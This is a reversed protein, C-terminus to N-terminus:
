PIQKRKAYSRVATETIGLARALQSYSAGRRLASALAHEYHVKTDQILKRYVVASKIYFDLDEM